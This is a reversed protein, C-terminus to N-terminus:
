TGTIAPWVRRKSWRRSRDVVARMERWPRADVAKEDPTGLRRWAAVAGAAREVMAPLAARERPHLATHAEYGTLLGNLTAPEFAECQSFGVAAMAIDFVRPARAAEEFDIATLGGDPRRIINDPFLDGHVLTVPLAGDTPARSIADAIFRTFEAEGPGERGTVVRHLREPGMDHPPAAAPPARHIAALLLGIEHATRPDVAYLPRGEVFRTVLVPREVEIGVDEPAGVLQGVPADALAELIRAVRRAGTLDKYLCFTVKVPDHSGGFRAVFNLNASGGSLLEIDVPAPLHYRACVAPIRELCRQTLSTHM